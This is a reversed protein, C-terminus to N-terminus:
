RKCKYANGSISVSTEAQGGTGQYVNGTSSAQTQLLQVYNGGLKYTKNRLDNYAGQQLNANSTYQGTFFNGQNATVMGLYKCHRPKKQGVVVKEAGPTLSTASCAALLAAATCVVLTSIIQKKM